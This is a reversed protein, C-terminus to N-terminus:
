VSNTVDDTINALPDDRIPLVDSSICWNVPDTNIDPLLKFILPVSTKVSDGNVAVAIEPANLPCVPDNKVSDGNVAAAIDPANLPWVPDNKVSDGNVAVAMEPANKSDDSDSALLTVDTSLEPPPVPTPNGYEPESTIVEFLLEAATIVPEKNKVPDPLTVAKPLMLALPCKNILADVVADANFM